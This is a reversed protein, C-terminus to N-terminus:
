ATLTVKCIGLPQRVALARRVEARVVILNSTFDSAHSNTSEVRVGSGAKGYVTASSQFAGVAVTGQAIAPTVVTRLGWLPPKEMVGGVGYQGQFFGGGYYQGNGDQRLRFVQYDSPHIVIGDAPLGSNTEIKTSARFIAQEWDKPTTAFSASVETQIGSRNLLGLINAGSGSGNLLQQEVRYQLQYMLRNDIESRLFDADEIFEDTMRIWGAIKKLTDTVSTPDVFHIQPKAAGEAVAAFDGEMAGEVLYSIANGSITGQGLLDAVTLRVRLATVITRDFETLFPTLGSGTPVVQPDTNAKSGVFEPVGVVAGNVGKANVLGTHGHKVFHEGLSKAAAELSAGDGGRPAQPASVAMADLQGFIAASKASAVLAEQISKVETLKEGIESREDDTLDRGDSRAKEAIDKAETVLQDRREQSPAAAPATM